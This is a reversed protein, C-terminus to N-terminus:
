ARLREVDKITESRILNDPVAQPLFTLFMDIAELILEKDGKHLHTAQIDQRLIVANLLIRIRYTLSMYNQLKKSDDLGVMAPICAYLVSDLHSLSLPDLMFTLHSKPGAFSMKKKRKM